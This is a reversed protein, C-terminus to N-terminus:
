ARRFLAALDGGNKDVYREYAEDDMEAIDELTVPGDAPRSAIAQLSTAAAKKRQLDRIRDAASAASGAAGGSTPGGAAASTAAGTPAPGYGWQDSLEHAVAAPNRGQRIAGGVLMAAENAIIQGRESADGYGMLELERNRRERLFQVREYYDPHGALIFQQELGSLLAQHQAAQAQATSVQQQQHLTELAQRHRRLEWQYHGEPDTKPDPEPDANRAAAAGELAAREQVQRLREAARNWREEHESLKRGLEDMKRKLDRNEQREKLLSWAPVSENPGLKRVQEDSLEEARGEAAARDEAAAGDEGPAGEASDGPTEQPPPESSERRAAEGEANGSQLLEREAPDLLEPDEGFSAVDEAELQDMAARDAGKRKTAMM